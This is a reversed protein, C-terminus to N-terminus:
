NNTINLKKDKTVLLRIIQSQSPLVENIAEANDVFIPATIGYQKCFANIIDIGTNIRMANNLSSYPTGNVTAECMEVEGGNIQQGYMKWRVIDFLSNIRQQVLDIKKKTFRAIAFDEKELDAVQQSLTRQQAELEMIRQENAKALDEKALTKAYGDVVEQIQAIKARKEANDPESINGGVKAELEAIEAKIAAYFSDKEQAERVAEKTPVEPIVLEYIDSELDNKRQKAKELEREADEKNEKAKKGNEINKRLATAINERYERIIALGAESDADLKNHCVPCELELGEGDEPIEKKKLERYEALYAQRRTEYKEVLATIDSIRLEVRELEGKLEAEKKLARQRDDVYGAMATTELRTLDRRREDLLRYIDKRAEAEAAFAKSEDALEAQLQELQKKDNEYYARIMKFDTTTDIDRRREDIRQPITELEAKVVKKKANIERQYEAMTKGTLKGLLTALEDDGEAVQEPKIEGALKILMERQVMPALGAFYMPNTILRFTDEDCIAAVKDKYDGVSMPVGNYYRDESHGVFEEEACGRRKVWRENYKRCLTTEEGDVDLTVTVEHPLRPIANGDADLTKIDFQKRGLSDKGFLTWLFADFVTTKGTANAGRIDTKEGFDVALERVGKFNLLEIRKLTIRRM